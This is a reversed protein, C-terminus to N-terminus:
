TYLNIHPKFHSLFLKKIYAKVELHLILFIRNHDSEGVEKAGYFDNAVLDVQRKELRVLTFPEKSADVDM